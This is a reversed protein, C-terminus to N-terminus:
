PLPGPLGKLPGEERGAPLLVAQGVAQMRGLLLGLLQSLLPLLQLHGLLLQPALPVLQLFLPLVRSLVARPRAPLELAPSHSRAGLQARPGPQGQPSPLM